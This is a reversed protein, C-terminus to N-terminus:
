PTTAVLNMEFSSAEGGASSATLKCTGAQLPMFPIHTGDSLCGQWQLEGDRGKCIEPTDTTATVEVTRCIRKGAVTQAVRLSNAYNLTVNYPTGIAPLEQVLRIESAAVATMELVVQEVLPSTLNLKGPKTPAWSFRMPPEGNSTAQAIEDGRIADVVLGNLRQNGNFLQVDIFEQHGVPLLHAPDSEARCAASAEIRNAKKVEIEISANRTTEDDFKALVDLRSKGEAKGHVVVNASAAQILAPVQALTAIELVSSDSVTFKTDLLQASTCLGLKYEGQCTDSITVALYGDVALAEGASSISASKELKCGVLGSLIACVLARASADVWWPKCRDDPSDIPQHTM